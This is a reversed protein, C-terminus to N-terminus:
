PGYTQRWAMKKAQDLDHIEFVNALRDEGPVLVPGSRAFAVVEEVMPTFNGFRMSREVKGVTPRHPSRVRRDDDHRPLHTWHSSSPDPWPTLHGSFRVTSCRGHLRVLKLEVSLADVMM